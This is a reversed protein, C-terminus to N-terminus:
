PFCPDDYSGPSGSLLCVASPHCSSGHVIACSRARSSTGILAVVTTPGASGRRGPVPSQLHVRTGTASPRMGGTIRHFRSNMVLLFWLTYHSVRGPPSPLTRARGYRGRAADSTAPRSCRRRAGKGSDVRRMRIAAHSPSRRAPGRSPDDSLRAKRAGPVRTRARARAHKASSLSRRSRTTASCNHNVPQRAAVHANILRRICISWNYVTRNASM